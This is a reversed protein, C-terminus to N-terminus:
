FRYGSCSARRRLWAGGSPAALSLPDRHCDVSRWASRCRIRQEVHRVFRQEGHRAVRKHVHGAFRQEIRGSRARRWKCVGTQIVFSTARAAAEGVSAIHAAAHGSAWRACEGGRARRSGVGGCREVHGGFGHVLHAVRWVKRSGVDREYAGVSCGILQVRAVNQSRSRLAGHHARGIFAARLEGGFDTPRGAACLVAHIAAGHQRKQAAKHGLVGQALSVERLGVQHGDICCALHAVLHCADALGEVVHGDHGDAVRRQAVTGIHGELLDAREDKRLRCAAKMQEMLVADHM